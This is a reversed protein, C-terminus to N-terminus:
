FFLSDYLFTRLFVNIFNVGVTDFYLYIKLYCDDRPSRITTLLFDHIPHTKTALVDRVVENMRACQTGISYFVFDEVLGLRVVSSPM